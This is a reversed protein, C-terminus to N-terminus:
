GQTPPAGAFDNAASDRRALHVALAKQRAPLAEVAPTAPQPCCAAQKGRRMGWLMHVPCALADAVAVLATTVLPQASPQSQQDELREIELALRQHEERLQEVSADAPPQAPSSAAVPQGAASDKRM